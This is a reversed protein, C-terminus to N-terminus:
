GAGGIGAIIRDFRELNAPKGMMRREGEYAARAIQIGRELPCIRGPELEPSPQAHSLEKRYADLVAAIPPRRAESWSRALKQIATAAIDDRRLKEVEAAYVLVSDDNWGTTAAVLYGVLAIARDRDM